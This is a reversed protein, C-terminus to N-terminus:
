EYDNDDSDSDSSDSDDSGDVSPDDGESLSHCGSGDTSGRRNDILGTAIFFKLMDDVPTYDGKM